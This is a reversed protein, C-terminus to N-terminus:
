CPESASASSLSATSSPRAPTPAAPRYYCTQTSQCSHHPPCQASCSASSTTSCSSCCSARSSPTPWYLDPTTSGTSNQHQLFHHQSEAQLGRDLRVALQHVELRWYWVGFLGPPRDRASALMSSNRLRTLRIQLQRYWTGSSAYFLDSLSFHLLCAPIQLCGGSLRHWPGGKWSGVCM